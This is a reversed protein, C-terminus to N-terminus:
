SEALLCREQKVPRAIVFTHGLIALSSWPHGLIVMSSWLDYCTLHRGIDCTRVQSLATTCQVTCYILEGLCSQIVHHRNTERDPLM